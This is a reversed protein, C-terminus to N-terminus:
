DKLLKETADLLEDLSFPKKLFLDVEYPQDKFIFKGQGHEAQIEKGGGSVLITKIHPFSGQIKIILEIGNMEPMFLDTTILDYHNKNILDWAEKGNSAEEVHYGEDEFVITHTERLLDVDDVVLIKKPSDNM